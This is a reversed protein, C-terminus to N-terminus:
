QQISAALKGTFAYRFERGRWAQLAGYLGYIGWIAMILLPIVMSILGAWFLLPPDEDFQEPNAILPILSIFYFLSWLAWSLAIIVIGVTQYIAAQLAQGAAYASKEKQTIYILIGAVIGIGGALLSGHALAAMLREEQSYVAKNM